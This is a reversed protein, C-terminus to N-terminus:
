VDIKKSTKIKRSSKEEEERGGRCEKMKQLIWPAQLFLFLDVTSTAQLSAGGLGQDAGTKTHIKKYLGFLKTHSHIIQLIGEGVTPSSFFLIM